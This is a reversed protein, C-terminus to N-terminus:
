GSRDLGRGVGFAVIMAAASLAVYAACARVGLTFLGWSLAIPVLGIAAALVRTRELRRIVSLLAKLNKLSPAGIQMAATMPSALARHLAAASLVEVAPADEFERAKARLRGFDGSDGQALELKAARGLADRASASDWGVDLLAGMARAGELVPPSASLSLGLGAVIGEQDNGLLMLTLGQDTLFGLTARDRREIDHGLRKRVERPPGLFWRQGQVTGQHVQGTRKTAAARLVDSGELARTWPGEQLLARAIAAARESRLAGLVVIEARGAGVLLEPDIRWAKLRALQFLAPWDLPRASHTVLRRLIAQVCARELLASAAVGIFVLSLAPLAKTLSPGFVVLLSLMGLAGALACWLSSRTGFSWRLPGLARLRASLSARLSPAHSCRAQFGPVAVRSGAWVLDGPAKAVPLSTGKEPRGWVESEDVFGGASHAEGDIPLAEGVGLEVMEGPKIPSTGILASPEVHQIFSLDLRKLLLVWLASLALSGALWRVSLAGLGAPSSFLGAMVGVAGLAGLAGLGWIPVLARWPPQEWAARAKRFPASGFGLACVPLLGIMLAGQLANAHDIDVGLLALGGVLALVLCGVQARFLWSRAEM